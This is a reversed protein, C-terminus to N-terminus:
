LHKSRRDFSLNYIKACLFHFTYHCVSYLCWLLTVKLSCKEQRSQCTMDSSLSWKSRASVWWLLLVLSFCLCLFCFVFFLVFVVDCKLYLQKLWSIDDQTAASLEVENQRSCLIVLNSTLVTILFAFFCCCCGFMDENVNLAMSTHNIGDDVLDNEHGAYSCWVAHGGNNGRQFQTWKIRRETEGIGQIM